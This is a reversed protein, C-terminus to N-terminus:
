RPAGKADDTHAALARPRWGPHGEDLAKAARHVQVQVQV